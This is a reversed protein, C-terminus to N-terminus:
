AIYVLPKLCLFTPYIIFLVHMNATYSTALLLNLKSASGVASNNPLIKKMKKETKLKILEDCVMKKCREFLPGILTQM